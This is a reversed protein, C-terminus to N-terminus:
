PLMEKFQKESVIRVGLQKAKEFKSGPNQGVVVFDTKTSVSSASTGGASRVLSEAESRSLLQMEGTFVVTKGTLLTNTKHPEPTEVMVIGAKHLEAILERTQPLSFYVAISAAMVPGIEEIADFDDYQAKLITDMTLFRQALVYAAKEGVHRIGLAFLFRSLPRTKSKEIAALLNDAKKDKFLELKLFDNKTLTYIDAFNRVRQVAVLQAIVAEGLGEIDMAQRSAFHLLGRELQAPCSPNICRYAVDEEKEKVIVGDCIPCAGPVRFEAHGSHKVVMVVKPIVEGAREILVTDGATVGLRKIEDFNHLTANRIIVGACEVPALEATPTIVGTRGVNMKIALVETTAQQAPFKFAVAWRPSKQTTGLVGQSKFSNVKVVVGDIEYDLERRKEQWQRCFAIVEDIGSCVQSCPNTRLGWEKLITLFDWQTTGSFGITEGLSHAFFNLHRRAVEGTDLLKLSGAAANRPNSFVDAGAANRTQNLGKFDAIPLYVEGRIEIFRPINKSFLVLPIARITKVNALVDEGTQGDGRTAATILKGRDYTLNATLGDIKLEAVYEVNPEGLGKVVREHWQRLDDISYTNDLSLMKHAHAVTKFGSVIGGGVRVTPSDDTVFQPYQKELDILTRMLDDYETDSIEPHAQAYYLYDHRRIIQRLKEIQKGIAQSM